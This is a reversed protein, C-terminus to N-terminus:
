QPKTRRVYDNVEAATLARTYLLVEDLTGIFFESLKSDKRCGLLVDVAGTTVTGTQTRSQLKAGDLYQTMSAAATDYVLALHHWTGTPVQGTSTASTYAFSTSQTTALAALFRQTAPNADVTLSYHNPASVLASEWPSSSRTSKVWVMASFASADNFSLNTGTRTLCYSGDFKGGSGVAGATTYLLAKTLGKAAGSTSLGYMPYSSGAGHLCMDDSAGCQAGDNVLRSPDFDQYYRIGSAPPKTSTCTQQLCRVSEASDGALIACDTLAACGKNLACKGSCPGGCDIDTESGNKLGDTCGSPLCTQNTCVGSKCDGGKACGEGDKCLGSCSGGCDVGTEDGDKQKSDCTSVLCHGTADCAGGACATHEGLPAQVCEGDVCSVALCASTAKPCDTAVTCEPPPPQGSNGGAAAGATTAGAGGTKGGAGAVADSGAKGGAASKGGSNGADRGSEGADPAGGILASESGGTDSGSGRGADTAEGGNGSAPFGGRGGVGWAGSLEADSPALLSCGSSGILFLGVLSEIRVIL